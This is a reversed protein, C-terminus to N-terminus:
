TERINPIRTEDLHPTGTEHLNLTPLLLPAPGSTLEPGVGFSEPSVFGHLIVPTVKCPPTDGLVRTVGIWVGLAQGPTSAEQAGAAVREQEREREIEWVCVSEREREREKEREIEWVCVSERERERERQTEEVRKGGKVRERERARAKESQHRECSSEPRCTASGYTAGGLERERM